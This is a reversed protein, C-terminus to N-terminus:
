QKNVPDTPIDEDEIHYSYVDRDKPLSKVFEGFPRLNEFDMMEEKIVGDALYCGDFSKCEELMECFEDQRSNWRFSLDYFQFFLQEHGDTIKIVWDYETGSVLDGDQWVGEALLKGEYNYAKGCGSRKGDCYEGVYDSNKQFGNVNLEELKNDWSYWGEFVPIGHQLVRIKKDSVYSFIVQNDKDKIERLNAAFHNNSSNLARLLDFSERDLLEKYDRAQSFLEYYESKFLLRLWQRFIPLIYESAESRGCEEVSIIFSDIGDVLVNLYSYQEETLGDRLELAHERFVDKLHALSSNNYHDSRLIYLRIAKELENYMMLKATRIQENRERDTNRKEFHYILVAIGVSALLSLYALMIEVYVLANEIGSLWVRIGPILLLVCPLFLIVILLVCGFIKLAKM